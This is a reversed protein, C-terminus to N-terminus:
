DLTSPEGPIRCAPRRPRLGAPPPQTLRDYVDLAGMGVALGVVAVGLMIAVVKRGQEFVLLSIVIGVVEVVMPAIQAMKIWGAHGPGLLSVCMGLQFIAGALMTALGLLEVARRGKRDALEDSGRRWPQVIVILPVALAVLVIGVVCQVLESQNGTTM